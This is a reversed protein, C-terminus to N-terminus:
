SIRKLLEPTIQYVAPEGAFFRRLEEVALEGMRNCNEICGAIHPTVVVNDLTRLPSDDALPEPDTVDLFAFFRGKSLEEVLAPEDILTGRATNILLVDDKMLSLREANLMHRTQEKAPAHLSVIDAQGLLTDLDLKTVGLEKAEEESVYPDYLLVTVEFPKLLEIVHRGINSAGIIGVKVRFLERSFWRDWAPSDRWGGDRVHQSLPWIRKRGVIMLGLTTEAVDRALTIGASTLHIGRNWFVDSVFRTVSSGMHAMAQLRPASSLVDADFRAVGWSTICADAGPLLDILDEKGAPEQEPHHIVEAFGELSEWAQQSFMREYYSKGITIAVTPRSM